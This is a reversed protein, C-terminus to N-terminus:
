NKRSNIRRITKKQIENKLQLNELALSTLEKYYNKISQAQNNSRERLDKNEERLNDIIKAYDKILDTMQVLHADM